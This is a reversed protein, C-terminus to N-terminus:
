YKEYQLANTFHLFAVILKTMDTWGYTEGCPVVPCIKTYNLISYKELFQRSFELKILIPCSYMPSLM